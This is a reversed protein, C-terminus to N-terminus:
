TILNISNGGIAKLELNQSEFNLKDFNSVIM